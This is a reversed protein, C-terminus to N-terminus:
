VIQSRVSPKKLFDPMEFRIETGRQDDLRGRQAKKLGEFLDVFALFCINNLSM